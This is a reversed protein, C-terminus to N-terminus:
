AHIPLYRPKVKWRYRLGRRKGAIAGEQYCLLQEITEARVQEMQWLQVDREKRDNLADPGAGARRAAGYAPGSWGMPPFNDHHLSPVLLGMLSQPHPCMLAM